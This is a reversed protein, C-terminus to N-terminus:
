PKPQFRGSGRSGSRSSGRLPRRNPYPTSPSFALSRSSPQIYPRGRQPRPSTPQRCAPIGSSRPQRRSSTRPPSKRSKSTSTDKTFTFEAKNIDKRRKIESSLQDDFKGGFLDPGSLPLDMFSRRIDFSPWHINDLVLERRDLSARVAVMAFQDYSLRAIPGLLNVM